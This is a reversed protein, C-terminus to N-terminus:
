TDGQRGCVIPNVFCRQPKYFYKPVTRKSISFLPAGWAMLSLWQMHKIIFCHAGKTSEKWGPMRMNKRMTTCKHWKHAQLTTCMGAHRWNTFFFSLFEFLFITNCTFDIVRLQMPQGCHGLQKRLHLVWEIQSIQSAFNPVPLFGSPPSAVNCINCVVWHTPAEPSSVCLEISCSINKKKNWKIAEKM